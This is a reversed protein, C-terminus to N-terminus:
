IQTSIKLGDFPHLDISGFSSRTFRRMLRCSFFNTCCYQSVRPSSKDVSTVNNKWRITELSAFRFVLLFHLLEPLYSLGDLHGRVGANLAKQMYHPLNKSQRTNLANRNLTVSLEGERPQLSGIDLVIQIDGKIM